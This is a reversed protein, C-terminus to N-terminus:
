SEQPGGKGHSPCRADTFMTPEDETWGPTRKCTCFEAELSDYERQARDCEEGDRRDGAEVIAAHARALKRRKDDLPTAERLVTGAPLAVTTGDPLTAIHPACINVQADVNTRVTIGNDPPRTTWGSSTGVPLGAGPEPRPPESWDAPTAPRLKGRREVAVDPTATHVDSRLHGPKLTFRGLAADLALGIADPANADGMAAGCSPCAIPCPPPEPPPGNGRWTSPTIM